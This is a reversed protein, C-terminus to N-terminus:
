LIHSVSNDSDVKREIGQRIVNSDYLPPLSFSTSCKAHLLTLKSWAIRSDCTNSDQAWNSFDKLLTHWGSIEHDNRPSSCLVTRRNLNLQTISKLLRLYRVSQIYCTPATIINSRRRRMVGGSRSTALSRHQYHGPQAHKWHEIISPPLVGGLGALNIENQHDGYPPLPKPLKVDKGSASM